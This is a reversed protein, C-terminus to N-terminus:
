ECALGDRDTDLHTGYGPEGSRVPTAGADRAADCDVFHVHDAADVRPLADVDTAPLPDTAPPPGPAPPPPPVTVVPVPSPPPSPPIAPAATTTTAETPLPATNQTVIAEHEAPPQGTFAGMAGFVVAVGAVPALVRGWRPWSRYTDLLGSMPARTVRHEGSPTVPRPPGVIPRHEGSRLSAVVEDPTPERYAGGRRRDASIDGYASRYGLVVAPVGGGGADHRPGTGSGSAPRADHSENASGNGNGSSARGIAPVAPAGTGAPGLNPRTDRAHNGNGGSQAFHRGAGDDVDGAGDDVGPQVFHRGIGGGAGSGLSPPAYHRGTGGDAGDPAAPGRCDSGAPPAEGFPAPRESGGSRGNTPSLTSGGPRPPGPDDGNIAPRYGLGGDTWDDRQPRRGTGGLPTPPYWRGDSARWWGAPPPGARMTGAGDSWPAGGPENM